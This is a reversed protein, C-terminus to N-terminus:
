SRGAASGSASGPPGGAAATAGAASCLSRASTAGGASRASRNPELLEQFSCCAGWDGKPSSCSYLACGPAATPPGSLGHLASWENAKRARADHLSERIFSLTAQVTCLQANTAKWGHCRPANNPTNRRMHLTQCAWGAAASLCLIWHLAAGPAYNREASRQQPLSRCAGALQCLELGSHVRLQACPPSAWALPLWLAQPLRQVQRAQCDDAQPYCLAWCAPLSHAQHRCGAAQEAAAQLRLLCLLTLTPPHQM